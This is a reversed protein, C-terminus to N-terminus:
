TGSAAMAAVLSDMAAIVRAPVPNSNVVLSFVVHHGGATTLYGSLARTERVWGTKARVNAEGPTGLFRNALTGTRGALPLAAQLEGFWTQSRAAVLLEVWERPARSDDRSLGSGDAAQGSLAM